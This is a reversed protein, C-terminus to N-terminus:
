TPAAFARARVQEGASPAPTDSLGEPPLTEPLPAEPSRTTRVGPSGPPVEGVQMPRQLVTQKQTLMFLNGVTVDLREVSQSLSELSKAKSAEREASEMMRLALGMVDKSYDRMSRSNAQSILVALLAVTAGCALALLPEM